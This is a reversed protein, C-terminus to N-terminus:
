VDQFDEKFHCACRPLNRNSHLNTIREVIDKNTSNYTIIKCMYQVAKYLKDRGETSNSISILTDM